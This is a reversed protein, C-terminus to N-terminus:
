MAGFKVIVNVKHGLVHKQQYTEYCADGLLFSCFYKLVKHYMEYLSKVGGYATARVDEVQM